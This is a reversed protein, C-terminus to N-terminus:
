EDTEAQKGNDKKSLMNMVSADNKFNLDDRSIPVVQPNNGRRTEVM